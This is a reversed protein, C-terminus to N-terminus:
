PGVRFAQYGEDENSVTNNDIRRLKATQPNVEGQLKLTLTFQDGAGISQVTWTGQLPQNSVPGSEMRLTLVGTFSGDARYQITTTMQIPEAFGAGQQVSQVRWTGVMFQKWQNEPPIPPPMKAFTPALEVQKGAAKWDPDGSKWTLTDQTITGATIDAIVQELTFPGAPKGEREVYFSVTQKPPLPPPKPPEPTPLPPPGPEPPNPTPGPPNDDGATAAPAPDDAFAPTAFQPAAVGIALAGLLLLAKWDKKMDEMKGAKSKGRSTGQWISAPQGAQFGRMKVPM